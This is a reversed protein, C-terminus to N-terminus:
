LLQDCNEVCNGKKDISYHIPGKIVEARGNEFQKAFTFDGQIVVNGEKDIYNWKGNEMQVNALGENFPQRSPDPEFLNIEKFIPEIAVMGERDLFGWKGESTLFAALGENYHNVEEYQAAIIIDGELNMIGKRGLIDDYFWISGENPIGLDAYEIPIKINQDEDILGYRGYKSVVAHGEFFAGFYEYLTSDQSEGDCNIKRYVGKKTAGLVNKNAVEIGGKVFNWTEYITNQSGKEQRQTAVITVKATSGDVTGTVTTEFGIYQKQDTFNGIGELENGKINIKFVQQYGRETYMYCHSEGSDTNLIALDETAGTDGGCSFLGLLIISITSYFFAKM